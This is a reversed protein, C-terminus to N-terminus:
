YYRCILVLFPNIMKLLIFLLYPCSCVCCCLFEELIFWGAVPWHQVKFLMGTLLLWFTFLFSIQLIVNLTSKDKKLQAVLNFPMYAIMFFFVGAILIVSAGPWHQMKFISGLIILSSFIIGTIDAAKKM